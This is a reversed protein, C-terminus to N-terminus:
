KLEKVMKMWTKGSIVGDRGVYGVVPLKVQKRNVTKLEQDVESILHVIDLPQENSIHESINATRTM